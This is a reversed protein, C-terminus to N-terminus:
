SHEVVLVVTGQTSEQGLTALDERAPERAHAGPMLALQGRGDLPRALQRENRVDLTVGRLMVRGPPTHRRASPTTAKMKINEGPLRARRPRGSAPSSNAAPGDVARSQTTTTTAASNPTRAMRAGACAWSSATM